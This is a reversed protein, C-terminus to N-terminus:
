RTVILVGHMLPHYICYYKIIGVKKPIYTWSSGINVNGSNFLGNRATATHPANSHNVWTIAQGVHVRVPDPVSRAIIKSDSVWTVTVPAYLAAQPPKSILHFPGHFVIAGMGMVLVVACFWSARETPSLFDRM